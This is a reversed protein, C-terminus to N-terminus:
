MGDVMSKLSDFNMNDSMKMIKYFNAPNLDDGLLRLVMFGQKADNAYVIIEEVTKDLNDAYMQVQTDDSNVAMLQNDKFQNSLITSLETQKIKYEEENSGNKKFALFNVKNVDKFLEKQDEPLDDFNDVFTKLSFDVSIFNDDEKSDIMYTQLTNTQCSVLLLAVLISTIIAKM